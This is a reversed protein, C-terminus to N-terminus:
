FLPNCACCFLVFRDPNEQKLKANSRVLKHAKENSAKPCPILSFQNEPLDSVIRALLPLLM